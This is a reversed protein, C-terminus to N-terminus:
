EVTFFSGITNGNSDKVLSETTGAKVKEAIKALLNDLENPNDDFAANSLDLTLHLKM